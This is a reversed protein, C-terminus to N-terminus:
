SVEITVSRNGFVHLFDVIHWVTGLRIVHVVTNALENQVHNM